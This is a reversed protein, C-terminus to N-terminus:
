IHPQKIQIHEDKCKRENNLEYLKKSIYYLAAIRFDNVEGLSANYKTCLWEYGDTTIYPFIDCLKYEDVTINGKKLYRGANISHNGNTIQCLNIEPYYYGYHNLKDYIFNNKEIHILNSVTRENNWANLYIHTDKLSITRKQSKVKHFNGNEDYFVNPFFSNFNPYIIQYLPKAIICSCFDITLTEMFYHLVILQEAFSLNIISNEIMSCINEYNSKSIEKENLETESKITKKKKFISM